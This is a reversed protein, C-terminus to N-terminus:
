MPIYLILNLLFLFYSFFFLMSYKLLVESETLQGVLPLIELQWFNFPLPLPINNEM